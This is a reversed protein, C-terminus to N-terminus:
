EPYIPQYEDTVEETAGQVQEIENLDLEDTTIEEVEDEPTAPEIMKTSDLDVPNENKSNYISIASATTGIFIGVFLIVLGFVLYTELEKRFNVNKKEVKEIGLVKKNGKKDM